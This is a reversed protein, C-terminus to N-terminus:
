SVRGRGGKVIYGWNEVAEIKMNRIKLKKFFGM